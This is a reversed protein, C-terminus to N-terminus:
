PNWSFTVLAPDPALFQGYRADGVLYVELFSLGLRAVLPDTANTGLPTDAIHHMSKYVTTVPAFLAYVKPTSAPISDYQALTDSTYPDGQGAIIFSPVADNPYYGNTVVPTLGIAAKPRPSGSESAAYLAGSGGFSHGMVGLRTADLRGHLPSGSRADEEALTALGQLLALDRGGPCGDSGTDVFMVAIGHSALFTGWQVFSQPQTATSAYTECFGPVFVVGPFPAAADTPYYITPNVYNAGLPIGSSYTDVTYPGVTSASQATPVDTAVTVIASATRTPDAASTAVVHFTGTAAPATYRGTADVTGGNADTVSWVVSTDATGTVSAAFAQTGGPALVAAPPRVSVTVSAAAATDHSGGCAIVAWTALPIAALAARTVLASRQDPRM